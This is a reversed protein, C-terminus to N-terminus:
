NGTGGTGGGGTGGGTTISTAREEAWNGIAGLANTLSTGMSQFGAWVLTLIIAAGAVYELLTFGQENSRSNRRIQRKRNLM